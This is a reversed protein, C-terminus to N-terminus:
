SRRGRRHHADWADLIGCVVGLVLAAVGGALATGWLPATVETATWASPHLLALLLFWTTVGGAVLVGAGVATWLPGSDECREPECSLFRRLRQRQEELREAEEPTMRLRREAAEDVHTADGDLPRDGFGRREIWDM